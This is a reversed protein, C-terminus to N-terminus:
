GYTSMQGLTIWTSGSRILSFGFVDYQNANGTPTIKNAWSITSATSNIQIGEIIRATASQSVVVTVSTAQATTTPVNTFNATINGTPGSNYFVSNALTNYTVSGTGGSSISLKESTTGLTTQGGVSLNGFLTADGSDNLTFLNQTYANNIIEFGGASNLRFTKSPTTAGASNNTVKIFDIYGSGGLTNSGSVWIAQGTGSSSPNIFTNGDEGASFREISLNDQVIFKHGTANNDVDLKAVINGSSILSLVNAGSGPAGILNGTRIYVDTNLTTSGSVTSSGLTINTAAGGINITTATTNFLTATTKTTNIDGTSAGLVVIGDSASLIGSITSSGGTKGINLTTASQAFNVTTASGTVLNFTTSTTTIDGGNVAIDGALTINSGTITSGSITTFQATTGSVTTGAFSGGSYASGTITTFQAVVGSLTDTTKNYTLGADGGFTSGGDNFQVYTDLGAATTAGVTVGGGGGAGAGRSVGAQIFRAQATNSLDTASGLVLIYGVLIAAGATNEGEVFNESAINQQAVDLANTGGPPDAYTASGYYVTFARSTSNPYWYVRQISADSAGVSGTVGNNNYKTPDITTYGTNNTNTDLRLTSGSVYARYIKSVTVATDNASTINNPNNPNTTYNKGIIYSDGATKTIGLTSGSAALIHGSVKLPGFARMFDDQWHNNGYSVNPQTSVGNTVSGSQHLVRGITIYDSDTTLTFPSTQQIIGGTPNIGIYTILSSTIYTLSQSVYAPWQVHNITPYLDSGTSANYSLILGSGSTISFTTSGTATSLVGGHLLGTTLMGELWRLRTTNTFNTGPQYQTFYMDNTSGSTYIYSATQNTPIAVTNVPLLQLYPSVAVGGTVVFSGTVSVGGKTVSLVTSGSTVLNITDDEFDIKTNLQPDVVSILDGIVQSGTGFYNYAM